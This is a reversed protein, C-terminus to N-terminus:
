KWDLNNGASTIYEVDVRYFHANTEIKELKKLVLKYISRKNFEGTEIFKHVKHYLREKECSTEFISSIRERNEKFYKFEDYNELMRRSKVIVTDDFYDVVYWDQFDLKELVEKELKKKKIVIFVILVIVVAVYFLFLLSVIFPM